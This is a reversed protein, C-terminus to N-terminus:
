AYFVSITLNSDPQEDCFLTLSGSGQATAYMGPYGLVEPFIVMSSSTIGTISLTATYGGTTATWDTTAVTGTGVNWTDGVPTTIDGSGLISTGNITKINTGSVLTEQVAVDGSGLLSTSNVTKINTGSVLTEQVAVNGSGLLSTSNVTKINTGSVLTAQKGNLATTVVKNQVPNTSNDDLTADITIKNGGCNVIAM